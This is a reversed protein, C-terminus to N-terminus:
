AARRVELALTVLTWGTFIFDVGVLIGIVILSSGPWGLIMVVALGLSALGSALVWVWRSAPRLATALSVEFVGEAAFFLTAVLALSFIGLGPELLFLAGAIGYLLAIGLSLSAGRWSRSRVGAIARLIGIFILMWGIFLDVAFSAVQPVVLAGIGAAILAVGLFLFSATHLGSHNKEDTMNEESHVNEQASSGEIGPFSATWLGQPMAPSSRAAALRM